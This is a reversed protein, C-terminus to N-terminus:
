VAALERHVGRQYCHGSMWSGTCCCVISHRYARRYVVQRRVNDSQMDSPTTSVVTAFSARPSPCKPESSLALCLYICQDNSVYSLAYVSHNNNRRTVRRWHSSNPGSRHGRRGDHWDSSWNNGGSEACIVFRVALCAVNGPLSQHYKGAASNLWRWKISIPILLVILLVLLLVIFLVILVVMLLVILLM